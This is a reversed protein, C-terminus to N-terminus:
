ARQTCYQAVACLCENREQDPSNNEHLEREFYIDISVAARAVADRV